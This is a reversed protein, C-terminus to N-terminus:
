KFNPNKFAKICARVSPNTLATDEELKWPEKTWRPSHKYLFYNVTTTPKSKDSLAATAKALAKNWLAADSPCLFDKYHSESYINLSSAFQDREFIVSKVNGKRIKVRNSIVTSVVSSIKDNQEPCNTGKTEAYILRAMLEEDSDSALAKKYGEYKFETKSNLKIKEKIAEVEADSSVCHPTKGSSAVAKNSSGNNSRAGTTEALVSNSVLLLSLSLIIKM